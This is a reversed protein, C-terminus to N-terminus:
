ANGAASPARAPRRRARHHRDAAVAAEEERAALQRGDRLLPERQRDHDHVVAAVPHQAVVLVDGAGVAVADVEHRGVEGRQGLGEADARLGDLPELVVEALRERPWTSSRSGLTSTALVGSGSTGGGFVDGFQYRRRRVRSRRAALLEAGEPEGAVVQVLAQGLARGGGRRVRAELVRRGAAGRQRQGRPHVTRGALEASSTMTGLTRPAGIATAGSSRGTKVM